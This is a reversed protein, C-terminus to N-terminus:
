RGIVASLEDFTARSRELAEPDLTLSLRSSDVIDIFLITVTKRVDQAPNRAPPVGPKSGDVRFEM